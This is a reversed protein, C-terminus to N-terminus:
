PPSLPEFGRPVVLKDTDTYIRYEINIKEQTLTVSHVFTDVIKKCEEPNSRDHLISKQLALYGLVQDRDVEITEVAMLEQLRLRLENQENTLATIRPGAVSADMAGTELADFLKAIRGSLEPLRKKVGELEIARNKVDTTAHRKIDAMIDDIKTRDFAAELEDFVFEEILEQRISRNTCTRKRKRAACSYIPVNHGVDGTYAGGCEGCIVKGTLLYLRKRLRSTTQKSNDLMIQVRKWSEMDIIQPIAGPIRIVVDDAHKHRHNSGEALNYVFTGTYKENRLIEFISNKGFLKGRKTKYGNANLEAIIAGYGVMQLKLQYILRVAGAERANIMYRRDIVNYGLPPIGGCHLAKLANELLGKKTERALNKSFYKALGILVTKTLDSEPSDDLPQDVAILRVNKKNLRRENVVHDYDDRAFRDYKHVLCLQPKISGKQIDDIMELFQDRNETTTGSEERDLYVKIIKIHNKQAYTEIARLQADISEGRQNASSYRAYAVAIVWVTDTILNYPLASETSPM